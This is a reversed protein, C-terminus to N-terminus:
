LQLGRLTFSAHVFNDSEEELSGITISELDILYTLQLGNDYDAFSFPDMEITQLSSCNSIQCIAEDRSGIQNEKSNFSNSQFQLHKVAAFGSLSCTTVEKFSGNPFCVTKNEEIVPKEMICPDFERTYPSRFRWKKTVTAYIIAAIIVVVAILISVNVNFCLFCVVVLVISLLYPSVSYLFRFTSAHFGFSWEGEYEMADNRISMGFGCRKNNCYDGVYVVNGRNDFEEGSIRYYGSDFDGYFTGEFRKIGNHYEIMKDDKFEYLVEVERNDSWKSVREVQGSSFFYCIGETNGLRDKHILAKLEGNNDLEKWYGDMEESQEYRTNRCGKDFLGQYVVSGNEDYEIGSGQRYGNELRGVFFISGSEYYLRCEGQIEGDVYNFEAIVKNNPTVIVAPGNLKNNKMTTRITYSQHPSGIQLVVKNNNKDVQSIPFQSTICWNWTEVDFPKNMGINGSYDLPAVDVVEVADIPEFSSVDM